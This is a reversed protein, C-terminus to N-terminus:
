GHLRFQGTLGEPCQGVLTPVIPSLEEHGDSAEQVCLIGALTTKIRNEKRLIIQHYAKFLDIKSFVKSGAIQHTFDKLHPLAYTDLETM